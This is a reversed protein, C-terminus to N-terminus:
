SEPVSVEVVNSPGSEINKKVAKTAYRYTKGPEVWRDEYDLRRILTGNVRTCSGDPNLRYLNYGEGDRLPTSLSASANWSMIVRHEAAPDGTAQVRADSCQFAIENTMPRSAPESAFSVHPGPRFFTRVAFSGVIVAGVALTVVAVFLKSTSIIRM